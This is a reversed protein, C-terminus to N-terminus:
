EHSSRPTAADLHDSCRPLRPSPSLRASSREIRIEHPLDVLGGEATSGFVTLDTIRRRRHILDLGAGRRAVNVTAFYKGPALHNDFEVTFTM